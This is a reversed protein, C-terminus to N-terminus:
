DLLLACHARLALTGGQFIICGGGGEGLCGRVPGTPRDTLAETVPARKLPPDLCFNRVGLGGFGGRWIVTEKGM